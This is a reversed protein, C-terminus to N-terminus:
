RARAALQDPSRAAPQEIPAEAVAKRRGDEFGTLERIERAELVSLNYEQSGGHGKRRQVGIFLGWGGGRSM